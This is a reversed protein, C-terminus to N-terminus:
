ITYRDVRGRPKQKKAAKGQVSRPSKINLVEQNSELQPMPFQLAEMDESVKSFTSSSSSRSSFSSKSSNTADVDVENIEFKNLRAM